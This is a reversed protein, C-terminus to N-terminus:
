PKAQRRFVITRDHRQLVLGEPRVALAQREFAVKGLDNADFRLHAEGGSARPLAFAESVLDYVPLMVSVSVAQEGPALPIELGEQGFQREIARGDSLRVRASFYQRDVGQPLDLTLTLRESPMPKAALLVFKPAAVPDSTLLVRSGDVEWRGRAEEDLAGYSLAYDFRGDARLELGAAIEMQGGDYRGVLAAPNARASAALAPGGILAAAAVVAGALGALVCRAGRTM